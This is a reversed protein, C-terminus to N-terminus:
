AFLIPPLGAEPALFAFWTFFLCFLVLLSWGIKGALAYESKWLRVTMVLGIGCIFVDLIFNLWVVPKLHSYYGLILFLALFLLYNIRLIKITKNIEM